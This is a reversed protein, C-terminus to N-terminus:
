KEFNITKQVGKIIARYDSNDLDKIIAEADKSAYELMVYDKELDGLIFNPVGSQRVGLVDGPGRMKLDFHSIEFGDHCTELFKLKEKAEDSKSGNLLYCYGQRSGRGVRGRLQHLQSLGFYEANYIIMVNANPVNIGVEIVTTSILIDYKGSAFELMIKEKESADMQGHLMGIKIGLGKRDNLEINLNQYLTEVNQVDREDNEEIAPAVVFVQNKEDILKLVDNLIPKLSNDDILTTITELRDLPRSHITSVDMDSFLVTAMTRPIPTASMLLRDTNLGKDFLATRQNVGFRQQEDVVVLGLDNFEIQEQILSHTGIVINAEGNKISELVYDKKFNKLSSYLCMVNINLPKFLDRFYEYQQIALIETPVMFATQQSSLVTAYMALAAVITKGSGVDGQLLRNMVTNSELDELIEQLSSFQDKTLHFDLSNAVKFVDDNNFSKAKKHYKILDLNKMKNTLNFILFERYKLTRVGLSLEQQSRPFHIYQLAQHLPLLKYKDQISQPLDDELESLSEKFMKRVFKRYADISVGKTLRYIPLFGLNDELAKTNYNSVSVHKHKNYKGEINIQTGADLNTIWKRNFITCQIINGQFEVSFKAMSKRNFYSITPKNVLTANFFVKDGIKWLTFDEVSNYDYRYPYVFLIDLPNEINLYQMIKSETKLLKM